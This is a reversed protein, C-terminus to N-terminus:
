KGFLRKWLGKADRDRKAAPRNHYARARDLSDREVQWMRENELLDEPTMESFRKDNFGRVSM